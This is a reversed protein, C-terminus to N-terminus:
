WARGQLPLGRVAREGSPGDARTRPGSRLSGRLEHVARGALMGRSLRFRPGQTRGVHVASATAPTREPSSTWGAFDTRVPSHTGSVRGRPKRPGTPLSRRKSGPQVPLWCKFRASVLLSFRAFGRTEHPVGSTEWAEACCARRSRRADMGVIVVDTYRSDWARLHRETKAESSKWRWTHHAGSARMRRRTRVGQTREGVRARRGIM